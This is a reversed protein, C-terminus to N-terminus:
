YARAMEQPVSLLYECVPLVALDLFVQADSFTRIWQSFTM